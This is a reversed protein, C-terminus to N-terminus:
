KMTCRKWGNWRLIVESEAVFSPPSSFRAHAKGAYPLPDGLKRPPHPHTAGSKSPEPNPGILIQSDINPTRLGFLFVGFFSQCELSAKVLVWVLVRIYEFFILLYGLFGSTFLNNLYRFLTFYIWIDSYIRIYKLDCYISYIKVLTQTLTPDIANGSSM